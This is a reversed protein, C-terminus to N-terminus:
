RRAGKRHSAHWGLMKAEGAGIVLNLGVSLFGVLLILAYMRPFDGIRRVEDVLSGVGPSGSLYEAVVIVILCLSASIRVGTAIFPMSAPLQIRLFATAPRIRYSRRLDRLVPDVGRVGYLTQILVPFVAAFSAMAVKMAMSTGLMLILIFILAPPPTSRLVDILLSTSKTLFRSPGILLGLGVGLVISVCMALFWGLVTNGIAWWTTAQALTTVLSVAVDSFAPFDRPDLIALRSVLEWVLAVALVVAIRLAAIRMETGRRAAALATM